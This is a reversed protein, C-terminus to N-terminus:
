MGPPRLRPRLGPGADCGSRGAGAVRPEPSRQAAGSHRQVAARPQGRPWLPRGAGASRLRIEAGRARCSFAGTM